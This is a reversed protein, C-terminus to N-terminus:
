DSAEAFAQPGHLLTTESIKPRWKHAKQKLSAAIERFCCDAGTVELRIAVASAVLWVAIAIIIEVKRM